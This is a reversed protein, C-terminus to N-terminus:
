GVSGRVAVTKGSRTRMLHGARIGPRRIMGKPVSLNLAKDVNWMSKAVTVQRDRGWEGDRERQYAREKIKKAKANWVRAENANDHATKLAMLGGVAGLSAIGPKRQVLDKGGYALLGAGIVANGAADITRSRAGRRLHKYGEEAKPSIRNRYQTLFKDDYKSVRERKVELNQMRANNFSGLSGVGIAGVGLTNSAKTAKPELSMLHSVKPHAAVKPVKRAVANAIEPSRTALAALGLTGSVRSLNKSRRKSNIIRERYDAASEKSVNNQLVKQGKKAQDTLLANHLVPKVVDQSISVPRTKKPKVMGHLGLALLPLGTVQLSRAGLKSGAYVAHARNLKLEKAADFLGKNGSRALRQETVRNAYAGGGTLAGGVVVQGVANRRYESQKSM